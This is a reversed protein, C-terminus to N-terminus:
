ESTKAAAFLALRFAWHRLVHDRVTLEIYRARNLLAEHVVRNLWEGPPTTTTPPASPQLYPVPALFREADPEEM